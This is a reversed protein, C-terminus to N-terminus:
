SVPTSLSSSNHYCVEDCDIQYDCIRDIHKMLSPSTHLLVKHLKLRVAMDAFSINDVLASRMCSIQGPNYDPFKRYIHCTVLYDLIADGLFELRQYSDTLRNRTYSAHTLAQLLLSRNKFKWGIIDEMKKGALAKHLLRDLEVKDGERILRPEWFSQGLKFFNQLIKASNTIFVPMAPPSLKPQKSRPPQNFRRDLRSAQSPENTCTLSGFLYDFGDIQGEEMPLEDCLNTSDEEATIKIGMWEMFKLGALIGGSSLYAGILSEVSDAVGKDTLKHYVYNREDENLSGPIHRSSTSSSAQSLNHDGTFQYGPPVWMQRADFAKSMVYNAINKGKALYFLNFNEVRRSRASSLRGEHAAQRNCYLFISTSFKLFSDGLTELRELDVSDMASKATLAQLLLGNDPSRIPGESCDSECFSLMSDSELDFGRIYNQSRLEGTTVDQSGMLKVSTTLESGDSCLGIKSEQLIKTRLIDVVLFSEIRWLISPLCRALKWLHSPVPYISVLEPFFEIPQSRKDSKKPNEETSQKFRSMFLQLYAPSTGLYKCVLAPQQNDTITVDEKSAFYSHYTPTVNLDPFPSSLNITESVEIVELLKKPKHHNAVVIANKFEHTNGTWQVPEYVTSPDLAKLSLEVLLQASEMDIIAELQSSAAQGDMNEAVIVQIPVMLYDKLAEGFTPKLCDPKISLVHTFLAHHSIKLQELEKPELSINM